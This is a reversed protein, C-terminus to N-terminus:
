SKDKSIETKKTQEPDIYELEEDDEMQVSLSSLGTHAKKQSLILDRIISDNFKFSNKIEKICDQDCEVNLLAYSAKFLDEIPYALKKRGIDESRHVIGGSDKVTLSLKDIIAQTKDSQDPHVLFVIEYHRM